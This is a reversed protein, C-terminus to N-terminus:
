RLTGSRGTPEKLFLRGNREQMEQRGILAFSDSRFGHEQRFSVYLGLGTAKSRLSGVTHIHVQFIM